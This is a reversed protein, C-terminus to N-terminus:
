NHEEKPKFWRKRGDPVFHLTQYGTAQQLSRLWVAIQVTLTYSSFGEGARLGEDQLISFQLKRRRWVSQVM